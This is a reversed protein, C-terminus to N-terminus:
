DTEHFNCDTKDIGAGENYYYKGNPNLCFGQEVPEMDDFYSDAFSIFSRCTTCNEM